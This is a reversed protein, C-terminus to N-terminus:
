VLNSLQVNPQIYNTLGTYNAWHIVVLLIQIDVTNMRQNQTIWIYTQNSGFKSSNISQSIWSLCGALILRVVAWIYIILGLLLAWCHKQLQSPASITAWWICDSDYLESCPQREGFTRLTPHTHHDFCSQLAALCKPSRHINNNLKWDIEM